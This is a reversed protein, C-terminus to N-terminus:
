MCYFGASDPKNMVGLSQFFDSSYPPTVFLGLSFIICEFPLAIERPNSFTVFLGFGVTM